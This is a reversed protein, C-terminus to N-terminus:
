LSSSGETKGSQGVQCLTKSGHRIRGLTSIISSSVQLGTRTHKEEFHVCVFKNSQIPIMNNESMIVYRPNFCKEKCHSIWACNTCNADM